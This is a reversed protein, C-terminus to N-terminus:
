GSVFGEIFIGQQYQSSKAIWFISELVGQGEGHRINPPQGARVSEELAETANKNEIEPL